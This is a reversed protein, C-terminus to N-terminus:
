RSLLERDPPTFNATYRAVGKTIRFDDLFGNYLYNTDYYGGVVLHQGTMSTSHTASAHLNGNFFLRLNTGQRTLAVHYWVGTSLVPTNSGAVIFSSGTGITCGLGGTLGAGAAGVGQLVIISNNYSTTLGGATTSLQFMGRQATGLVNNSNMWFEITFDGTGFAFDPNSPMVLRDATGDFEMSASGYKKVTTDLQADGVTELVNKGTSDIIGANTFNLLLSTNTIATLPATPPTFASTYVLSSAIRLNSIYGTLLGSNEPTRGINLTNTPNSASYSFGTNSSSGAAVGNIYFSATKGSTAFTVAVHNWANATLTSTSTFTAFSGSVGRTFELTLAAGSTVQFNFGVNVGSSATSCIFQQASVSPLYVWAEITYDSAGSNLFQWNAVAGVTLYDGTGDFYGSGGNVSASYAASPAFPGFPTVRVDGNRTIAFNNSSNDKFRNSQCTLLSTNTIATLPTTPPTFNSTYVATGNVLRLNSIYGGFDPFNSAGNQEEGIGAGTPTFIAATYSGSSVETGNVYLRATGANVSCSVHTWSNLPVTGGSIIVSPSGSGTNSRYNLGLVNSSIYFSVNGYFSVNSANVTYIVGNASIPYVWAELTWTTGQIYMGDTTSTFSRRLSDNVGDFYNSWGGEPQSFPTFTGQTVNGTRTSAINNTSGDLFTNNQAGNTGNGNLLLTTQNFYPDTPISYRQNGTPRNGFHIGM